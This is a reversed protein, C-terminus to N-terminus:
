RAVIESKEPEKCRWPGCASACSCDEREIGGGWAGAYVWAQCRRLFARVPSGSVQRSFLLLDPGRFRVKPMARAVGVWQLTWSSDFAGTKNGVIFPRLILPLRFELSFTLDAEPFAAGAPGGGRRGDDAM